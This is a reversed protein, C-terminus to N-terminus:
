EVDSLNLQGTHSSTGATAAKTGKMRERDPRLDQALEGLDRLENLVWVLKSLENVQHQRLLHEKLSDCM